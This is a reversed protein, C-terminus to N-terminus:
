QMQQAISCRIQAIPLRTSVSQLNTNEGSGSQKRTYIYQGNGSLGVYISVTFSVDLM